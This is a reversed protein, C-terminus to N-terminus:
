DSEPHVHGDSGSQSTSTIHQLASDIADAFAEDAQQSAEPDLELYREGGLLALQDRLSSGWLGIEHFVPVVRRLLLDLFAAAAPSSDVLHVCQAVPFGLREWVERQVFSQKIQSLSELVFAERRAREPASLQRYYDRLVIRGFAVHRAEDQMVYANVATALNATSNDRIRQFSALAVNEVLVQMTLLAMDWESASLGDELLRKLAPSIPYQMSFKERLLRSYAEVHRAEDMVQTAAFLKADISDLNQVVRSAALMAGQEGHLFQSITHAQTHVQVQRREAASLRKWLSSGHIPIMSADLQMPNDPDLEESWDLRESADWQRRKAKDYLQLMDARGPDLYNWSFHNEGGGQFTWPPDAPTAGAQTDHTMTM